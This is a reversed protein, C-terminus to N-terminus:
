LKWRWRILVYDRFVGRRHSCQSTTKRLISSSFGDERPTRLIVENVEPSGILSPAHGFDEPSGYGEGSVDSNPIFPKIFVTGSKTEHSKARGDDTSFLLIRLNVAKCKIAM